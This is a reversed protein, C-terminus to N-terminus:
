GLCSSLSSIDVLEELPGPGFLGWSEPPAWIRITSGQLEKSGLKLTSISAGADVHGYIRAPFFGGARSQLLKSRKCIERGGLNEVGGVGRKARQGHLRIIGFLTLVGLKSCGSLM